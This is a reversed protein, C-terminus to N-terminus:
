RRRRNQPLAKALRRQHNEVTPARREADRASAQSRAAHIEIAQLIWATMTMEASAAAEEIMRREKRNLRIKVEDRRPRYSKRFDWRGTEPDRPQSQWDNRATTAM